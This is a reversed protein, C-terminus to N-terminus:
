MGSYHNGPGAQGSLWSFPRAKSLKPRLIVYGPGGGTTFPNVGKQRVQAAKTTVSKTVVESQIGGSTHALLTLHPSQFSNPISRM